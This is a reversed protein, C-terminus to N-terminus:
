EKKEDHVEIVGKTVIKPNMIEHYAAKALKGTEGEADRLAQLMGKENMFKLTRIAGARKAEDNSRAMQGLKYRLVVRTFSHPGNDFHLNDFQKMLLVRAWEQPTEAIELRGIAVANDVWRFIHGQDLDDHSWFGFSRYWLDQLEELAVKKDAESFMAVTRAATDPAGGLILALAADVMLSDDKMLEFLKAEIEKGFGAKGLARAAQHRTEIAAEKNILALLDNTIGQVPRTIITELVCSRRFQELKETGNWENIKEVVTKMNEDTAVWALSQCCAMRAQENEKDQEIYEIMKDFAKEDRWEAMGECAGKGLARLTMGIIALGGGMLSDMTADIDGPRRGLQKDLTSRSPEDKMMGVYRLASQAIVWEEPMPPQQGELPLQEKPDAWDRLQRLIKKDETKMRALARLGNAHPSPLENIWFSVAFEADKRIQEAKDAHVYALDALMRASVVREKDDRKLMQEWDYKDSYIKLPDMRLRKALTPVARIDGIEALAFAAETQWHIHPETELYKVLYDGGRPDALERVLEMVHKTRYWRSKETKAKNAGELALVLGQAGIGDRIAHLYKEREEKGAKDLAELLPVRAKNDGIKGLGPAAQRAVEEDKDQVLKILADTWKPEANRSLVTAVLQRVAASEDGAMGALQDLSILKVIKEPDFAVVGDLRMVKSLHGQRYLAMIDDFGRNDGLEVLAWAVQPKEGKDSEKLLKLLADKASDAAPSGLWALTTAAQARVTVDTSGLAKILLPVGEADELFGIQKIAERKLETGGQGGLKSEPSALERWKPIQEEKPLILIAKKKAAAQEVTIEEVSQKMGLFFFAAGGIVIVIAVLIAIPAFRGKKFNGDGPDMMGGGGGAPVGGGPPDGPLDADDPPWKAFNAMEPPPSKGTAPTPNRNTELM